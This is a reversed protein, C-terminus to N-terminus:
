SSAASPVRRYRHTLAAQVRRTRRTRGTSSSALPSHHSATSVVSSRVQHSDQPTRAIPWPRRWTTTPSRGSASRGTTSTHALRKHRQASGAHAVRAQDSSDSSIAGRATSVSRARASIARPTPGSLVGDGLGRPVEAHQPVRRHDRHAIVAPGADIVEGAEAGGARDPEVLRREESPGRLVRGHQHGPDDVEVLAAEDINERSAASDRHGVSQRRLRGWPQRADAIHHDVGVLGIGRRHGRSQGIGAQYDIVEMHDTDGVRGGILDAAAHLLGGGAVPAALVVREVPDAASKRGAV